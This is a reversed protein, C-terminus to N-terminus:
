LLCAPSSCYLNLFSWCSQQQQLLPQPLVQLVIATTPQPLVQLVIATTPQPLVQLVAVVCTLIYQQSTSPSCYIVPISVQYCAHSIQAECPNKEKLAAPASLHKRCPDSFTFLPCRYTMWLPQWEQQRSKKRRLPM